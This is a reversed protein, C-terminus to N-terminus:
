NYAEVKTTNAEDDSDSETLDPDIDEIDGVMQEVADAAKRVAELSALVTDPGASFAFYERDDRRAARLFDYIVDMNSKLAENLKQSDLVRKSTRHARKTVVADLERRIRVRQPTHPTMAAPKGILESIKTCTQTSLQEYDIDPWSYSNEDFTGKNMEGLAQILISANYQHPHDSM